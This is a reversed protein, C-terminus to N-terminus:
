TPFHRHLEENQQVLLAVQAELAAIREKDGGIQPIPPPRQNTHISSEEHCAQSIFRTNVM